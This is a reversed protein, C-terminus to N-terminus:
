ICCSRYRLHSQYSCFDPKTPARPWSPHFEGTYRPCSRLWQLCERGDLAKLWGDLNRATGGEESLLWARRSCLPALKDKAGVKMWQYFLSPFLSFLFLWHFLHLSELTATVLALLFFHKLFPAAQLWHGQFAERVKVWTPRVLWAQTWHGTYVGEFHHHWLDSRWSM